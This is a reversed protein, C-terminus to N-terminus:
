RFRQLFDDLVTRHEGSLYQFRLGVGPLTPNGVGGRHVWMVEGMVHLPRMSGPLTLRLHLRHGKEFPQKSHLFLGNDSINTSYDTFMDGGKTFYEVKLMTPMRPQVRRNQSKIKNAM